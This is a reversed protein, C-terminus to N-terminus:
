ARDDDDYTIKVLLFVQILRKQNKLSMKLQYINQNIQALKKNLNKLKDDFDTKKVFNAIDNKYALNAQALRAAFNEATLKNFEPTTIYKDHDHGTIKSETESIKTNYDTKKLQIVSM